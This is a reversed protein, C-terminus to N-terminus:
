PHCPESGGNFYNYLYVLDALDISGDINVDGVSGPVGLTICLFYYNALIVFDAVTSVLDGDLDGCTYLGLDCGQGLAGIIVGCNNNIPLCYSHRDIHYDQAATDCFDPDISINGDIGFQGAAPGVYDGGENDFINCCILQLTKSPHDIGFPGSDGVNGVILCNELVPSETNYDDGIYIATGEGIASNGVITNNRYIGVYGAWWSTSSYIGGGNGDASNNVILNNEVIAGGTIGGGGGGSNGAIFNNRIISEPSAARDCIGGGWTARNNIIRCYEIITKGRVSYIGGGQSATNNVIVDHHIHADSIHCFIGGGYSRSDPTPVLSDDVQRITFGCIETLSDTHQIDIVPEPFDGDIITNEITSVEEGLLFESGLVISEYNGLLKINEYYIGEHVLVTDLHGSNDIAHQITQYPNDFSGDGTADDGGPSVHRTIPEPCGPHYASYVGIDVRSGDPDVMDPRGADIAPSKDCVVFDGNESDIFLPHDILNGEGPCGRFVISYTVSLGPSIQAKDRSRNGWIISNIVTISNSSIGGLIGFELLNHRDTCYNGCITCNIIQPDVGGDCYVGGGESSGWLFGPYAKNNIILCNEVLANSNYMFIGGGYGSPSDYSGIYCDYAANEKIICDKILPNADDLAIGGGRTAICNKIICNTIAPSAGFCLIGGGYGFLFGSGSAPAIGNMITFGAIQSTSDESNYFNFGRYYLEESVSAQCDIITEEPGNKSILAINKGGFDIDRNGDGTYTGPAVLVTDGESTANIGAQITLQDEPVYIVASWSFGSLILLGIAIVISKM